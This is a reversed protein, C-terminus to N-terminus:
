GSQVGHRAEVGIGMMRLIAASAPRRREMEGYAQRRWRRLAAEQGRRDALAAQLVEFLLLKAEAQVAPLRMLYATIAAQPMDGVARFSLGYWWSM